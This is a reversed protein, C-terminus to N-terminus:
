FTGINNLVDVPDAGFTAELKVATEKKVSEKAKHLIMEWHEQPVCIVGDNDAFIIDNNKITVGNITVPLNMAELTGEYRIDDARSGHAFVPLGMDAVKAVDRTHGDVVVGVAGQRMAFTANLDGFYAKDPVDTSVVIVDGPEVFEYSKLAGFIGTWKDKSPDKDEQDLTKLKLTKAFGLFKGGTLPKINNSLFHKINNEKCVDSLLCSSLIHSIMKMQQTKSSRQGACIIRALELDSPNNIDLSQLPNLDYLMVSDTYRKNAPVGNTKVAYFSMAEVTREPLDVSNPIKDGYLPRGDKWEYFKDRTVAVLSTHESKKFESLANDVVTSDVFPATCLIQVVIDADTHKTQNAFMSHGDTKNNALAEDRYLHKVPLDDVLDHIKQSESDIWVEDIEKCQLLQLIKRKFLFEGDLITLNKNPIRKSTGKAPVFVVTKKSM